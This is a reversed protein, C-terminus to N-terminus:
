ETVPAAEAFRHAARDSEASRRRRAAALGAVGAVLLLVSAPEPVRVQELSGITLDDFGWFDPDGSSAGSSSFRIEDFESNANIYGFFNLNGDNAGNGGGGIGHAPNWRDLLSGGSYFDLTLQDGFDGVDIGYVGFAAVAESFTIVFQNGATGTAVDWWNSGSTAQRGVGIGVGGSAIVGNNTLTATGAGPFSLNLPAGDGDSFSEFDETGVGILNSLFSNRAAESNTGAVTAPGDLVWRLDQGFFTTQAGAPAAASGLLLSLLALIPIPRDNSM